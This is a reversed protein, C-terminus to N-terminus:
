LTNKLMAVVARQKTDPQPASAQPIAVFVCNKPPVPPPLNAPRYILPQQGNVSFQYGILEVPGGKEITVFQGWCVMVVGALFAAAGRQDFRGM